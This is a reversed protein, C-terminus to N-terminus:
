SQPFTGLKWSSVCWLLVRTKGHSRFCSERRTRMTGFVRTEARKEVLPAHRQTALLVERSRTQNAQMGVSESEEVGVACATETVTYRKEENMRPGEAIRGPYYYFDASEM